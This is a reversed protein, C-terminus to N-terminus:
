LSPTLEPLPEREWFRPKALGLQMGTEADERTAIHGVRVALEPHLEVLIAALQAASVTITNFTLCQVCLIRLVGDHARLASEGPDLHGCTRCTLDSRMEEIPGGPVFAAKHDLFPM